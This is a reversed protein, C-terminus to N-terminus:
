MKPIQLIQMAQMCSAFTERTRSEERIGMMFLSAM